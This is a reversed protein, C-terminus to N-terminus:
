YIYAGRQRAEQKRGGRDHTSPSSLQENNQPTNLKGGKYHELIILTIYVETAGNILRGKGRRQLVHVHAYPPFSAPLINFQIFM